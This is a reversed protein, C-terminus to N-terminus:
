RSRPDISPIVGTRIPDAMDGAGLRETITAISM